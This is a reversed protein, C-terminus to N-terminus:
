GESLCARAHGMGAARVQDHVRVLVNEKELQGYVM